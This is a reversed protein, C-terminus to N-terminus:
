IAEKLARLDNLNFRIIGLALTLCGVLYILAPLATHWLSFATVPAVGCVWIAVLSHIRNSVEYLLLAAYVSFGLGYCLIAQHVNKVFFMAILFSIGVLINIARVYRVKNMALLYRESLVAWYLVPLSCVLATYPQFKPLITVLAYTALGATAFYCLSFSMITAYHRERDDSRLLAVFITKINLPFFSTASQVLSAMVRFLGLSDAPLTKSLLFPFINTFLNYVLTLSLMSPVSKWLSGVVGALSGAGPWVRSSPILFVAAVLAPVLNTLILIHQIDMEYVKTLNLVISVGFMSLFACLYVLIRKAQRMAYMSLLVCSSLLMAALLLVSGLPYLLNVTAFVVLVGGGVCLSVPFIAPADLRSLLPENAIDTLKQFVFVLINAQLFLGYETLGFLAPVAFNM